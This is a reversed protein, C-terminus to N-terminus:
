KPKEYSPNQKLKLPKEKQGKRKFMFCVCIAKDIM